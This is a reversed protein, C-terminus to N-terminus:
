NDTTRGEPFGSTRRHGKRIVLVERHLRVAQRLCLNRWRSVEAGSPVLRETCTVFSWHSIRLM